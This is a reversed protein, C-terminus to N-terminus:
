RNLKFISLLAALVMKIRCAASNREAMGCQRFRALASLFDGRRFLLSGLDYNWTSIQQDILLRHKEALDHFRTKMNQLVDIQCSYRMIRDNILNGEHRRRKLLVRNVFGFQCVSALRLWLDYDEAIRLNTNFGGFEQFSKRRIMVTPTPIVNEMVLLQFVNELVGNSGRLCNNVDLDKIEPEMADQLSKVNAMLSFVLDLGPNKAFLDMQISTKEELWVDDSDQFAIFDGKAEMSGRNRAAAPGLNEQRIYRVIPYKRLVEMTDDTSGDDVVIIEDVPHSQDLVSEIADGIYKARNYTPIIASIKPM